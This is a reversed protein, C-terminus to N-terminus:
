KPIFMRSPQKEEMVVPEDLKSFFYANKIEAIIVDPQTGISVKEPNEFELKVKLEDKEGEVSVLVTFGLEDPPASYEDGRRLEFILM